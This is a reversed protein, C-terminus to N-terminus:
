RRGALFQHLSFTFQSLTKTVPQVSNLEHELDLDSPVSISPKPADAFKFGGVVNVPNIAHALRLLARLGGIEIGRGAPSGAACRSAAIM